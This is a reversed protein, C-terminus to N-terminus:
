AHVIISVPPRYGTPFFGAHVRLCQGEPKSGLIPILCLNISVVAISTAEPAAPLHITATRHM